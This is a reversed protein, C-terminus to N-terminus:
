QGEEIDIDDIVASQRGFPGQGFFVGRASIRQVGKWITRQEPTLHPTVYEDPFAAVYETMQVFLELPPAWGADWNEHLSDNIKSRQEPTLNLIQDMQAVINDITADTRFADRKAREADYDARQQETMAGQLKEELKKEVPPVAGGANVAVPMNGAIMMVGGRIARGNNKANERAFERLWANAVEIAAKRQEDTWHCVRNAFSLEVKLLPAFQSRIAALRPDEDGAAAADAPNVAPAPAAEFVQVQLAQGRAAPIRTMALVVVSGLLFTLASKLMPAEARGCGVPHFEHPTENGAM